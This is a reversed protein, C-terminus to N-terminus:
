EIYGVFWGNDKENSYSWGTKGSVVYNDSEDIIMMRKM